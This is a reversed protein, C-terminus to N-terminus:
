LKTFWYITVIIMIVIIVIIVMNFVFLNSLALANVIAAIINIVFNQFGESLLAFVVIAVLAGFILMVPKININKARIKRSKIKM